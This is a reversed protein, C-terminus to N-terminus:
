SAVPEVPPEQLRKGDPGVLVLRPRSRFPQLGFEVLKESRRGYHQRVGTDLFAMLTNGEQMLEALRKSVEQKRAALTAQEATLSRVETLLAELQLRKPELHQLEAANAALTKNRLDMKTQAQSYSRAM